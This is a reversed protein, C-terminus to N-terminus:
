LRADFACAPNRSRLGLCHLRPINLPMQHPQRNVLVDGVAQQRPDSELEQQLCISKRM